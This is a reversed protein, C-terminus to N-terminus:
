RSAVRDKVLDHDVFVARGPRQRYGTTIRRRKAGEKVQFEYAEACFADDFIVTYHNDVGYLEDVVGRTKLTVTATNFSGGGAPPAYELRIDGAHWLKWEVRYDLAAPKIPAAPAPLVVFILKPTVPGPNPMEIM